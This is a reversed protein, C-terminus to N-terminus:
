QSICEKNTAEIIFLMYDNEIGRVIGRMEKWENRIIAGFFIIKIM